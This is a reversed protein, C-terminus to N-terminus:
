FKLAKKRALFKFVELGIIGISSLMICIMWDTGSLYLYNIQLDLGWLDNIYLNVVYSFNIHLIHIGLTFLTILFLSLNFEEKISKVLSKNPRRFSWIFTTETIYITTILMTRAKQATIDQLTSGAPIYSLGPNLNWENLPIIGSLTLQLALVLGIGMFVANLVLMIWMNKNLLQQEDRPLEKMVDKPHSDIVLAISPLSHVIGYIYIHQWESAFLQFTPIFEYTFFVAAEMLNLCIFFYIINRIKAFLGRGIKVGKEISNFNDDSIVLDAIEKSVDTGTIGMSIGCDALKLALADNVGDGTMAVVHKKKGDSGQYRKVIIEKDRPVVRAFVSVKEFDEDSLSEIQTGEVVLDKEQYIMSQSAVTKATRPHDGTIMTVKIGGSQCELVSEQVGPRIPDLISLFGLFILNDEAAERTMGKIYEISKYAIALTRYGQNARENILNSLEQRAKQSLDDIKGDIEIKSSKLLVKEPAGKSFVSYEKHQETNECITTMQKIESDFSFEEILQYNKKVDYPLFGAKEALILLSAETPSGIAKRVAKQKQDKLRVKVDEYTLQANNNIIIADIFHLFTKNNNLNVPKTKFSIIGESDYGSGSVDYEMDNLWFKNVSMENRTITGTKDSCIISVRGLSEIAALNKVIVGSQAMNLVGTILVLTSLLPLNIPMVNMARLISSILAETIFHGYFNGEIALISFKYIILIILISILLSGLIYGLRNLKRTLPIDEISGMENLQHSIKGIETNIGTGFIVAKGRGTNVYTGMFVINSQEQIPLSSKNLLDSEKEVAQSEGTLAAEDITLNISEIIRGDAPIKDGQKLIIIDGPVVEKTPIEFQIGDRLVTAKLAAIEHLAELAKQARYQQIIVTISNAFVIIFTFTASGYDGLFIVFTGTFILIIILINFIPALYIKWLSKKIKPLENNGHILYKEKLQTSKLGIDRDSGLDKLIEEVPKSYYDNQVQFSNAM